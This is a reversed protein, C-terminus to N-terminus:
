LPLSGQQAIRDALEGYIVNVLRLIRKMTTKCYHLVDPHNKYTRQSYTARPNDPLPPINPKITQVGETPSVEITASKIILQEHTYTNKYKSFEKKWTPNLLRIIIQEDPMQKAIEKKATEFYVNEKLPIGFYTLIERALIDLAGGGFHFFSDLNNNVALFFEDPDSIIHKASITSFIAYLSDVHLRASELKYFVAYHYTYHANLIDESISNSKKLERICSRLRQCNSFTHYPSFM